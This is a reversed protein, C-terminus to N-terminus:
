LHKVTVNKSDFKTLIQGVEEDVTFYLIQWGEHSLVVLMALLERLRGRDSGLFPDDLLLFLPEDGFLCQLLSMRLSFQLRWQTGASLSDASLIEGARTQVYLLGDRWFISSYGSGQGGTVQTFYHIASQSGSALIANIVTHRHKSQDNIIDLATQAATRDREYDRKRQTVDEAAQYVDEPSSYGANLLRKEIATARKRVAQEEESLSPLEHELRAQVEEDWPMELDRYAELRALEDDWEEESTCDLMVNIKKTLGKIEDEARVRESVKDEFEGFTRCGSNSWFSELEHQLRKLRERKKEVEHNIIKFYSREEDAQAILTQVTAEAHQSGHQASVTWSEIESIDSAQEGQRTFFDLLGRKGQALRSSLRRRALWLGACIGASGTSVFMPLLYISYRFIAFVAFLAALSVFLVTGGVLFNQHSLLKKEREYLTEIQQLGSEVRPLVKTEKRTWERADHQYRAIEEEWQKIRTAAYDKQKELEIIDVRIADMEPELNRWRALELDTYPVLKQAMAQEESLKKRMVSATLLLEKHYARKLIKIHKQTADRRISIQRLRRRLQALEEVNDQLPALQLETERLREVEDKARRGNEDIWDGDTTLNAQNYVEHSVVELGDAFGSLYEKVDSWWPADEDLLERDSQRVVLLNRIHTPSLGTPRDLADGGASPYSLTAGQGPQTAACGCGVLTVSGSLINQTGEDRAPEGLLAELLADLVTAKDAASGACIITFASAKLNFDRLAEFEHITIDTIRM